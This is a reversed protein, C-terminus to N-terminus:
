QVTSTSQDTVKEREVTRLKALVSVVNENRMSNSVLLKSVLLLALPHDGLEEALRNKDSEAGVIGFRNLLAISEVRTFTPVDLNMFYPSLRRPVEGRSSVLIRVGLHIARTLVRESRLMSRAEDHDDVVLLLSPADAGKMACADLARQAEAFDPERGQLYFMNATVYENYGLYSLATIWTQLLGTKGMAGLGYIWAGPLSGFWWKDLALLERRRGLWNQPQGLGTDNIISLGPFGNDLQSSVQTAPRRALFKIIEVSVSENLPVSADWEM